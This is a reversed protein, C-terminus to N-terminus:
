EALNRRRLDDESSLPQNPCARCVKSIGDVDLCTMRTVNKLVDPKFMGVRQYNIDLCYGAAIVQGVLPCYWKEDDTRDGNVQEMGHDSSSRAVRQM